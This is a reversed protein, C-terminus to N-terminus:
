PEIVGEIIGENEIKNILCDWCTDYEPEICKGCECYNPM